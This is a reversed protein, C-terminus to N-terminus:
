LEPIFEKNSSIMCLFSRAEDKTKPPTLRNLSEVKEPDPSIGKDSVILGWWPIEKKSIICKDANFTMGADQMIRCVKELTEDHEQQTKGAVIIDAQIIHVDKEDQFLPRLAKNLEGSAPTTGMTLRKYRMLRHGAHFVTLQRSEEEIELQHFASRMDMKSYCKYGALRIEQPRPIPLNTKKIAKNCARMDVTVRISGNDKPALVLNSVWPAPGHHPEIIDEEEM